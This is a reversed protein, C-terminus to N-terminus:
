QAMLSMMLEVYVAPSHQESAGGTMAQTFLPLFTSFDNQAAALAGLTQQAQAALAADGSTLDAILIFLEYMTMGDESLGTSDIAHRDNYFADIDPCVGLMTMFMMHMDTNVTEPDTLEIDTGARTFGWVQPPMHTIMDSTNVFNFINEDNEAEGRITTPTAFTYVYIDETGFDANLMLGLLNSCGAGRSYGTVIIVPDELKELEPKVAAYIAESAAYFNEAATCDNGSVGAIDFNSYWEGDSTGRITIIAADRMEGRVPLQGAALTYASTHSHDSIPKNYNEQLIVELGLAQMQAAASTKDQGMCNALLFFATTMSLENTPTTFAAEVPIAALMAASNADVGYNEAMAPLAMILLALILATLKKM